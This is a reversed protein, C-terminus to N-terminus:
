AADCRGNELRLAYNLAVSLWDGGDRGGNWGEYWPFGWDDTQMRFSETIAPALQFRVYDPVDARLKWTTPDGADRGFPFMDCYYIKLWDPAAGPSEESVDPLDRILQNEMLFAYPTSFGNSGYDVGENLGLSVWFYDTPTPITIPSTGSIVTVTSTFEREFEVNVITYSLPDTHVNTFVHTEQWVTFRPATPVPSGPPPVDGGQDPNRHQTRVTVTATVVGEPAYVLANLMGVVLTRERRNTNLGGDRYLVLHPINSAWPPVDDITEGNQTKFLVKDGSRAYIYPIPSGPQLEPSASVLRFTVGLFLLALTCAFIVLKIRM